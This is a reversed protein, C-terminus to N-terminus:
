YYIFQHIPKVNETFILYFVRPKTVLSFLWQSKKLIFFNVHLWYQQRFKFNYFLALELVNELLFQILWGSTKARLQSTILIKENKLPSKVSLKNLSNASFTIIHARAGFIKKSIVFYRSRRPYPACKSARKCSFSSRERINPM